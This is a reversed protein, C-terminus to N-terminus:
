RAAKNIDIKINGDRLKSYTFNKSPVGGIENSIIKWSMKIKNTSVTLMEEYYMAKARRIVKRLLTCFRTYYERLRSHNTARSMMYLYKKHRCSIRIGKTLWQNAYVNYM